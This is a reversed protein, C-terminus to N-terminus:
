LNSIIHLNVVPGEFVYYAHFLPWIALYYIHLFANFFYEFYHGLLLILYVLSKSYLLETPYQQWSLRKVTVALLCLQQVVTGPCDM